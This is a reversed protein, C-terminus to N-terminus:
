EAKCKNFMGVLCRGTKQMFDAVDQYMEKPFKAFFNDAEFTLDGEYGIDALTKVIMPYDNCATFPLTHLDNIGDTDHVHLAQLRKPGLGRIMYEVDEGTLSIHGLDLCAVIWESNQLDVYRCFEEVRSCTSDVISKKANDPGVPNRQWMNEVGVKIGFKECYPILRAYFERNLEQLKDANTRYNLHQKPHVVIIKAGLIASAEMSRVVTKFIEEDKVEDGVSTPFPAHAQNCVIGLSDAYKRLAAAEERFNESLLPDTDKVSNMFTMDYADYGAKALIEVSRENGFTTKLVRTQTSLLM